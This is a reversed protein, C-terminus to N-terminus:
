AGLAETVIYVVNQARDLKQLLTRLAAIPMGDIVKELKLLKIRLGEISSNYRGAGQCTPQASGAARKLCLQREDSETASIKSLLTPARYIGKSEFEGV